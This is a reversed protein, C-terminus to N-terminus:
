KDCHPYVRVHDLWVNYPMTFTIVPASTSTRYYTGSNADRINYFPFQYLTNYQDRCEYPTGTTEIHIGSYTWMSNDNWNSTGQLYFDLKTNYANFILLLKYYVKM